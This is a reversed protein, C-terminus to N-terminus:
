VRMISEHGGQDGTMATDAPAGTGAPAGINASPVMRTRERELSFARPIHTPHPSCYLNFTSLQVNCLQTVKQNRRTYYDYVALAMAMIYGGDGDGRGEM